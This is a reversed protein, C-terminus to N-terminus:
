IYPVDFGGINIFGTPAYMVDYTASGAENVARTASAATKGSSTSLLSTITRFIQPDLESVGMFQKIQTELMSIRAELEKIQKQEPSM